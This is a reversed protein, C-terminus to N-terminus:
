QRAGTGDANRSPPSMRAPATSTRPATVAWTGAAELSGSSNFKYVAIGRRCKGAPDSGCSFGDALDWHGDWSTGESMFGAYICLHGPRARPSNVNGTCQAPNATAPDNDVQHVVPTFNLPMPFTADDIAYGTVDTRSMITGTQTKGRPLYSNVGHRVYRGDSYTKVKSKIHGGWLHSISNTVHAGAPSFLIAGAVVGVILFLLANRRGKPRDAM